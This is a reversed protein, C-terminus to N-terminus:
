YSSVTQLCVTSVLITVHELNQTVRPERYEEKWGRTERAGCKWLYLCKLSRVPEQGTVDRCGTDPYLGFTYTLLFPTADKSCRTCSYQSTQASELAARQLMPHGSVVEASEVSGDQRVQVEVKVDGEIRAQRALPPYVPPSPRVLVVLARSAETSTQALVQANLALCLAVVGATIPFSLPTGM